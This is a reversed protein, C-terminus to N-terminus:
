NKKPSVPMIEWKAKKNKPSYNYRAILPSSKKSKVLVSLNGGKISGQIVASAAIDNDSAYERRLLAERWSVISGVSFRRVEGLVLHNQRYVLILNKSTDYSADLFELLVRGKDEEYAWLKKSWLLRETQGSRLRLSYLFVKSPKDFGIDGNESTLKKIEENFPLERMSGELEGQKGWIRRGFKGIKLSLIFQFM